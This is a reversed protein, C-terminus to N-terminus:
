PVRVLRVPVAFAGTESPAPGGGGGAALGCSTVDVLRAMVNNGQVGELFILAFGIVAIQVNAGGDPLDNGPCFGAMNCEDWIPTSILQRSTDSIGGGARQYQGRAIFTDPTPGTLDRVGQITPGIMNGPEAGYVAQCYVRELSCTSINTRYDNGGMSDGMRIAFFQGPGLSQQPNGPKITFQGMTDIQNQAWPTVDGNSDIFIEGAGCATCPPNTSITTNPLFWPKSCSSGTATPSAEAIGRGNVDATTRGLVRAFFTEQTYNIDVTVLRNPVDVVVTVEGPTIIHGFINNSVAVSTAHQEATAPQPSAPDVVFTFAGALAGADAARRVAARASMLMGLDVALAAFGCLVPLLLAVSVIVYGRQRLSVREFM